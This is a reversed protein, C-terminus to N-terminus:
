EIVPDARLLMSALLALGLIYTTGYQWAAPQVSKSPNTGFISFSAHRLRDPAASAAGLSSRQM